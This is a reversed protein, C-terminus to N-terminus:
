SLVYWRGKTNSTINSSFNLYQDIHTLKGYVIFHTSGDENINLCADLFHLTVDQEPETTFKINYDLSNLNTTFEDIHYEHIVTFTDDVYRFWVSPLTPNPATRLAIEDFGERYLNSIIPSVPSGMAAGHEQKYIVGMYIFYITNLCLSLLGIIKERSLPTRDQLKPDEDLNIRVAKIADPIPISTFLESVDYAILKQGPPVELNKFKDVFDGSNQIHHESKGVQPCFIDALM